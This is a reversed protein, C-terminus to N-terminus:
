AYGQGLCHGHMFSNDNCVAFTEITLPCPQFDWSRSAPIDCPVRAIDPRLLRGWLAGTDAWEGVDLRQLSDDRGRASNRTRHMRQSMTRLACVCAFVAGDM